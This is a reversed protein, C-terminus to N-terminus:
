KKVTKLEIGEASDGSTLLINMTTDGSDDATVTDDMSQVSTAIDELQKTLAGMQQSIGSLALIIDAKSAGAEGALIEKKKPVPKQHAKNYEETFASGLVSIPLALVILGCYMLIIAVFRGVSTTPYM